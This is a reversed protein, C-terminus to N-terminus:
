LTKEAHKLKLIQKVIAEAAEQKSQLPLALESGDSTLMTIKNTDHGFGAGADNLSNLVIMDANKAKLKSLANEKENNTELAFGVLLQGDQKQKGLSALIDSTKTLQLDLTEGQKKIKQDAMQAPRYDAVAAALVSIECDPFASMCAEYMEGASEVYVVNIGAHYVKQSSPGLVLTVQAGAEALAEAIAIGMKGTSFNGIFRVPDIREYTPGATVLAKKGKLPKDQSNAFFGDLHKVIDESEAMRGEGILGSALEGHTVPIIRNGYSRIRGINDRTSRHFWMDEDMAPAVFVPCIASLYVALVLNDCLGSAMKALTNASCPAILMADAWRGLEVHNNWAAGDNVNSHVPHKSVTALSLPSVFQGAAPTTIVRVEAGAKILLRVLHPTKYAAISGTVALIIKKGALHM